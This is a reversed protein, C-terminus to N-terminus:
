DSFNGFKCYLFEMNLGFFSWSQLGFIETKLGFIGAKYHLFCNLFGRLREFVFESDNVFDHLQNFVAQLNSGLVSMLNGLSTTIGKPGMKALIISGKSLVQAYQTTTLTNM